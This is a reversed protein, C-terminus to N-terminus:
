RQVQCITYTIKRRSDCVTWTIFKLNKDRKNSFITLYYVAKLLIPLTLWTKSISTVLM